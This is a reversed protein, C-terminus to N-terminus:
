SIGLPKYKEGFKPFEEEDKKSINERWKVREKRELYPYQVVTLSNNRLYKLIENHKETKEKKRQYDTQM